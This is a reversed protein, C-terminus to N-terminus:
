LSLYRYRINGKNLYDDIITYKVGLDELKASADITLAVLQCNNPLPINSNFDILCYEM